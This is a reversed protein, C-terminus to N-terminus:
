NKSKKAASAKAAQKAKMRETIYKLIDACAYELYRATKLYSEESGGWPDDVDGGGTIQALTVVEAGGTATILRKHGATMCILLDAKDFLARTLLKSKHRFNKVGFAALAKLALPSVPQGASAQLGCSDAKIGKVGEKKVRARFLAEAM